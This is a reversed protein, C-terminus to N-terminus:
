EGKYELSPLDIITLKYYDECDSEKNLNVRITNTKGNAFDIVEMLDVMCGWENLDDQIFEMSKKVAEERTEYVGQKEVGVRTELDGYPVNLVLYKKM